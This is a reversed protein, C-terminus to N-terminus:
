GADVVGLSHSLLGKDRRRRQPKARRWEPPIEAPRMDSLAIGAEEVEMTFQIIMM